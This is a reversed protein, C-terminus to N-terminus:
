IEHYKPEHDETQDYAFLLKWLSTLPSEIFLHLILSCLITISLNGLYNYVLQVKDFHFPVQAQCHGFYGVHYHVLYMLFTLKSLPKFMPHSLVANPIGSKNTVCALIIWSMSLSWSLKLLIVYLVSISVDYCNEVICNINIPWYSHLCLICILATSISTSWGFM